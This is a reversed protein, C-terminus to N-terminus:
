NVQHQTCPLPSSSKEQSDGLECLFRRIGPLKSNASSTVRPTTTVLLKNLPRASSHHPSHASPHRKATNTAGMRCPPIDGARCSRPLSWCPAPTHQCSPFCLNVFTRSPGDSQLFLFYNFSKIDWIVLKWKLRM